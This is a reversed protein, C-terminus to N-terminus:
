DLANNAVYRIAARAEGEIMRGVDGVVDLEEDWVLLLRQARTCRRAGFSIPMANSTARESSGRRAESASSCSRTWVSSASIAASLRSTALSLALTRGSSESTAYAYMPLFMQITRFHRLPRWWFPNRQLRSIATRASIFSQAPAAPQPRPSPAPSRWRHCVRRWVAAVQSMCAPTGM